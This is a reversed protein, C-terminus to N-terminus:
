PTSVRVSDKGHSYLEWVSRIWSRRTMEGHTQPLSRVDLGTGAAKEKWSEFLAPDLPEDLGAAHGPFSEFYHGAIPGAELQPGNLAPSIGHFGGLTGWWQVASFDPDDPRVDSFYLTAAGVAHLRMQISAATILHISRHSQNALHALIGAAEGLAMFVPEYRLGCFGVHSASLACAVILNDVHRPLLTGLPVQFPPTDENFEGALTGGFQAGERSTGQCHLGYDGIAISDRHLVSRVDNSERQADGQVFVRCGIMRRAERVYLREPLHLSESFEDAALGWEAAEARFTAPVQPDNQLFYILGVNWLEHEKQIRDRPISLGLRSFPAVLSERENGSRIAVGSDGDPWAANAMPLALRVPGFPMDDIDFKGNPLPPSHVKLLAPPESGFVREIRGSRLLPLLATFRERRYGSPAYVPFRNERDRTLVMRFNYAQVRDDAEEPALSEKYEARAERGIRYPVRAAALLDGEYTADVFYHAAVPHRHGEEDWFVAIEASRDPDEGSADPGSSCKLAELTWRKEVRVSQAEALMAEFVALNVKPEANTGRLADRSQSSDPGYKKQYVAAVRTTFELFRGSLSSFTRFDPHSLGSTLMGGVRSTPEVLLVRSGARGASVAAAIGAPTAGYVLLDFEEAFLLPTTLAILVPFLLRVSWGLLGGARIRWSIGVPVALVASNTKSATACPPM